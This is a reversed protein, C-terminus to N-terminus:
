ENISELIKYYIPKKQKINCQKRIKYGVLFANRCSNIKEIFNLRIYFENSFMKHIEKDSLGLAKKLQIVTKEIERLQYIKM